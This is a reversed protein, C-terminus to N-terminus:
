SEFYDFEVEGIRVTDGEVAGKEKLLEDVGMNTMKRQLRKVAYENNFDTMAVLKEIKSGKVIFVENDKEVIIEDNEAMSKKEEVVHLSYEKESISTLEALRNILLSVGEGTVASIEFIEYSSGLEKKAVEAKKNAGPIDMKNLVIIQKKRTLDTDFFELERIITKFDKHPDRGELSAADLVHLLIGARQIHKLFEHGLGTGKHAGEILGPIDAAVFSHHNVKVVGLNPVLTTFHYDAIKPKASSIVSLLTSKGANPCGIIGVDALLKLELDLWKEEGPEGKEAFRPAKEKSSAFRANGRGGRGGYVAIVEQDESIIDAILEGTDSDKIVTGVPVHLVLDPASRGHKGSGCGHQGRKAKYHKKYRFDMLTKLGSDARFKVSGGRGGDGGDPGGEPVYKERRFSVIGDGGDGAKIYIRSRDVFM